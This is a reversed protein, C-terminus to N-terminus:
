RDLLQRLEQTVRQPDQDYEDLLRGLAVRVIHSKSLRQKSGRPRRRVQDWLDDLRSLQEDTFYFTFKITPAEARELTAAEAPESSTPTTATSGQEPYTEPIATETNTIDRVETPQLLPNSALGGSKKRSM